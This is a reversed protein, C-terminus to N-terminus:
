HKQHHLGREEVYVFAAWAAEAGHDAAAVEPSSLRFCDDDWGMADCSHWVSEKKALKGVMWIQRGGLSCTQRQRRTATHGVVLVVLVVLALCDSGRVSRFRPM